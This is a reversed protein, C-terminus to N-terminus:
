YIGGQLYLLIRNHILLILDEAKDGDIDEILMRAPGLNTNRRSYSKEEFIGFSLAQRLSRAAAKDQKNQELLLVRSHRFKLLLDILMRLLRLCGCSVGGM